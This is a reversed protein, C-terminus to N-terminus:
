WAKLIAFDYNGNHNTSARETRIKVRTTDKLGVYTQVDSQTPTVLVIYNTNPPNEIFEIQEDSGSVFISSINKSTVLSPVGGTFTVQGYAFVEPGQQVTQTYTNGRVSSVASNSSVEFKNFGIERDTQVYTVDDISTYIGGTDDNSAFLTVKSRNDGTPITNGEPASPSNQDRGAFGGYIQLGEVGSGLEIQTTLSMGVFRINTCSQLWVRNANGGVFFCDKTALSSDGGIIIDWGPLTLNSSVLTAGAAVNFTTNSVKFAVVGNVFTIAAGSLDITSGDSFTASSLDSLADGKRPYFSDASPIIFAIESATVTASTATTFRKGGPITFTCQTFYQQLVKRVDTGKINLNAYTVGSFSTANITGNSSFVCNVAKVEGVNTADAPNRDIYLGHKQSSKVIVNTMNLSNYGRIHIGNEAAGDIYCNSIIDYTPTSQDSEAMSPIYIGNAGSNILYLEHATFYRSGAASGPNARVSERIIQYDGGHLQLQKITCNWAQVKFGVNILKSATGDGFITVGTNAIPITLGM